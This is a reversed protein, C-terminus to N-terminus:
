QRKLQGLLLSEEVEHFIAAKYLIRGRTFQGGHLEALSPKPILNAIFHESLGVGIQYPFLVHRAVVRTPALSLEQTVSKERPHVLHILSRVGPPLPPM